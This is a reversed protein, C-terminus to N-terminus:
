EGGGTGLEALAAADLLDLLDPNLLRRAQREFEVSKAVEAELEAVRAKFYRNDQERVVRDDDIEGREQENTELAARLDNREEELEVIREAYGQAVQLHHGVTDPDTM